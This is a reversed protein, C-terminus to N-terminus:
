AINQKLFKNTFYVQGKGTVKTTKNVSIHGDSHTITTEKIEFLNLDMAKQTPMNYDTGKRSILYSNKRLWEFLRNQGIEIGNQKLIKALEGVLISSHSATVANAFLVKPAQKQLQSEALEKAAREEKLKTLANILVDPDDLLKDPDLATVGHKLLESIRDYVWLEFEPNLWAAFKLALKEHMWTGQAFNLSNGKNIVLIQSTPIGVKSELVEIYAKTQENALFHKAHKGFPKAMETANVMVDGNGLQFTISTGNYTFIKDMM